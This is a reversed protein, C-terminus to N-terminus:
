HHGAHGDKAPASAGADDIMKLYKAPDKKFDKICGKCCFRVLRDPKGSEKHIYDVPPGMDPSGLKEGSVVCTTLPYAAHADAPAKEAPPSKQHAQHDAASVPTTLTLGAGFTFLVALLGTFSSAHMKM